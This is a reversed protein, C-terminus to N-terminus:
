KELDPLPQRKGICPWLPFFGGFKFCRALGLLMGHTGSPNYEKCRCHEHCQMDMRIRVRLNVRVSKIKHDGARLIDLLRHRNEECVFFIFRDADRVLRHYRQLRQLSDGFQVIVSFLVRCEKLQLHRGFRGLPKTFYEGPHWRVCERKHKLVFHDENKAYIWFFEVLVDADATRRTSSSYLFKIILQLLKNQFIFLYFARLSLWKSM